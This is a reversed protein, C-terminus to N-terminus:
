SIQMNEVTQKGRLMESYKVVCKRTGIMGKEGERFYVKGKWFASM